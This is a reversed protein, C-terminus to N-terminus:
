RFDRVQAIDTENRGNRVYLLWADDASVSCGV